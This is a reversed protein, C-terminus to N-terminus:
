DRSFIRKVKKLFRYIRPSKKKINLLPKFFYYKMKTFFSFRFSLGTEMITVCPTCRGCPNGRKSPLHCSWSLELLDYFDNQKAITIMDTRLTYFIPYKYYKFLETISTDLDTYIESSPHILPLVSKRKTTMERGEWSM